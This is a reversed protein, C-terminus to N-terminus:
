ESTLGLLHGSLNFNSLRSSFSALSSANVTEYPLLNWINVVRNSFSNLFKCSGVPVIIKYNHGRTYLNNSFSFFLKKELSILGHIIKYYMKLDKKLRREELSELDLIFM